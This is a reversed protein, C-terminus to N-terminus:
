KMPTPQKGWVEFFYGSGAPAAFAAPRPKEVPGYCMKLQNGAVEYVGHRKQGKLPGSAFEFTMSKPNTSTDVTLNMLALKLQTPPTQTRDVYYLHYEANEIVVTVQKMQEATMQPKGEFEIQLPKWYGQLPDLDGAPPDAPAAGAFVLVCAMASFRLM